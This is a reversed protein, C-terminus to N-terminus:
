NLRVFAFRFIDFFYIKHVAPSSSYIGAARYYTQKTASSITSNYM